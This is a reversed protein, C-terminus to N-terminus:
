GRRAADDDNAPPMEGHSPAEEESALVVTAADNLERLWTSLERLYVRRRWELGDASRDYGLDRLAQVLDETKRVLEFAEAGNRRLVQLRETIEARHSSAGEGWYRGM